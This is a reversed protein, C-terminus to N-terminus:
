AVLVSRRSFSNPTKRVAVQREGAGDANAVVLATEGRPFNTRLFALRTGDPSLTVPSTVDEIIKRSAGGLTPVQYLTRSFLNPEGLRYYTYDGDKPLHNRSLGPPPRSSRRTALPRSRGFGSARSPNAGEPSLLM